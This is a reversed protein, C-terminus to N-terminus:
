KELTGCSFCPGICQTDCSYCSLYTEKLIQKFSNADSTSKIDINLSNWNFLMQKYPFNELYKKTAPINVYNYDNQRTQLEDTDTIETFKESFLIQLKNNRYQHVFVSKCYALKDAFKLIELEKFIPETHAKFNKLAINRICRKQLVEIKGLQKKDACGWM